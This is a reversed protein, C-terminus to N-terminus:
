GIKVWPQGGWLTEHLLQWAPGDIGSRVNTFRLMDGEVTWEASFLEGGAASGCSPGQGLVVSVRRGTVSYRSNPCGPDLFQGDAFHLTWIGAHDNATSRDIGAAVLFEAPMEMRYIGEPFVLNDEPTPGSSPTGPPPTQFLSDCAAVEPSPSDLQQKMDRIRGIMARTTGDRELDRYIPRAAREIAAVDAENAVAVTGGRACYEQASQADTPNTELVYDLTDEAADGLITQHEPSLREFADASAVLVNFKTAFTINATFTGLAPLSAFQAFASDAGDVEDAAVAQGFGAGNLSKGEARLAHLLMDTDPDLTRLVAGHFDSSTLFAQEFAIPHRLTEPLLALGVVGADDLGALMEQALEGTAIAEALAESTVLFPAKLARLSTVGFETWSGDPVLGVEAKGDELMRVLARGPNPDDEPVVQEHAEWVIDVRLSGGSLEDVQRAFEEVDDSAPRGPPDGIALRLTVPEAGGAKTEATASCGGLVVLAVAIAVLWRSPGWRSMVPRWDRTENGGFYETLARAAEHSVAIAVAPAVGRIGASNPCRLTAIAPTGSSFSQSQCAGVNHNARRLTAAAGPEGAASSM